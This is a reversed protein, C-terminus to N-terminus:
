FHTPIRWSVYRVTICHPFLGGNGIEWEIYGNYSLIGGEGVNNYLNDVGYNGPRRRYVMSGTSSRAMPAISAAEVKGSEESFRVLDQLHQFFQSSFWSGNNTHVQKITFSPVKHILYSINGWKSTYSYIRIEVIIRDM